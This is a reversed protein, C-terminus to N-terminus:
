PISSVDFARKNLADVENAGARSSTTLSTHSGSRTTGSAIATGSAVVASAVADAVAVTRITSHHLMRTHLHDPKREYERPM